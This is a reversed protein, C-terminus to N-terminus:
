DACSTDPRAFPVRHSRRSQVQYDSTSRFPSLKELYDQESGVPLRLMALLNGDFGLYIQSFSVFSSMACVSKTSFRVQYFATNAM